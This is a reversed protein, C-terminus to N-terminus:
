EYVKWHLFPQDTIAGLEAPTFVPTDDGGQRAKRGNNSGRSVYSPEYLLVKIPLSAIVSAAAARITPDNAKAALAAWGSPADLRCWAACFAVGITL